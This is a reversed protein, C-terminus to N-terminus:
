NPTAAATMEPVGAEIRAKMAKLSREMEDEFSKALQEEGFKALPGGHLSVEGICTLRTKGGELREFRRTAAGDVMASQFKTVTRENPVVEIDENTTELREGLFQDVETYRYGGNPLRQVDKMEIPGSATAYELAYAPDSLYAFVREVPADIVISKEIKIM